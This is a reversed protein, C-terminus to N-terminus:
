SQEYAWGGEIMANYIDQPVRGSKIIAIVENYTEVAVALCLRKIEGEELENIKFKNSPPHPSRVWKTEEMDLCNKAERGSGM